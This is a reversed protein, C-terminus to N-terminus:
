SEKKAVVFKFNDEKFYEEEGYISYFIFPRYAILKGNNVYYVVNDLYNDIERYKLFCDYNCEKEDYYELDLIDEYYKEFKAELISEVRSEDINFLELLKMDDILTDNKLDYNYSRFYVTPAFDTDYNVIKIVLSLLEGNIDYEYSITCEKNDKYDKIFSNINKNIAKGVDTKINIYPINKSYIGSKTSKITYVLYNNKNSKIFNYNDYQKRFYFVVIILVILVLSIAFIIKKKTDDSLNRFKSM